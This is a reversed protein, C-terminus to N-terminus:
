RRRIIWQAVKGTVIMVFPTILVIALIVPVFFLKINIWSDIVGVCVPVFLVPMIELLFKGVDIIWELKVIKFLLCFFLLLMGYISATIGFPLIRALLEGAFSFFTIIALQKVYKM